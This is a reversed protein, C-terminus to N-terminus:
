RELVEISDNGLGLMSNHKRCLIGRIYGTKHCHDIALYDTRNCIACQLGYRAIIADIEGIIINLDRGTMKALRKARGIVNYHNNNTIKRKDKHKNYSYNSYCSACLGKARHKRDPHCTPIPSIYNKSRPM